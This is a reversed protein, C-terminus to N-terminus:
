YASPTGFAYSTPPPDANHVACFADRSTSTVLPPVYSNALAIASAETAAITEIENLVLARAAPTPAETLLEAHRWARERWVVLTQLLGTYGLGYPTVINLMSPDFRATLEALLPAVVVNLFENVKDHDPKRSRGDPTAIGIAALMIPLDRNVHGNMGLLLNGSGTVRRGAAADFAVLWAQPVQSRQGAAWRDYADFYYRAFVADEHNVWPTDEFFGEQDRAWGYTQTTRLYALAFVANHHCSQGLPAFRREMERITAHLCNPRGAVCDNESSPNYTDTLGPLLSAWDVFVPDDALATRGGAPFSLALLLLLVLGARGRHRISM